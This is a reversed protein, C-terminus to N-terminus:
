SSTWKGTRPSLEALGTTRVSGESPVLAALKARRRAVHFGGLIAAMSLAPVGVWLMGALLAAIGGAAAVVSVILLGCCVLFSGFVPVGWVLWHTGNDAEM